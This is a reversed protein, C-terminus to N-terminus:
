DPKMELVKDLMWRVLAINTKPPHRVTDSYIRGVLNWKEADAPNLLLTLKKYTTTM